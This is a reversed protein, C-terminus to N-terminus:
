TSAWMTITGYIFIHERKVNYTTVVSSHLLFLFREEEREGTYRVVSTHLKGGTVGLHRGIWNLITGPTLTCGM